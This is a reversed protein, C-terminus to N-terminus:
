IINYYSMYLKLRDSTTPHFNGLKNNQLMSKIDEKSIWCFDDIEDNSKCYNLFDSSAVKTNVNCTVAFNYIDEEFELGLIDASELDIIDPVNNLSSFEESVARKIWEGIISDSNLDSLEIQEGITVAWKSPYDNIKSRSIRGMLVKGDSSTILLHLSLSNPFYYGSDLGKIMQIRCEADSKYRNWSFNVLIWDARQIKVKLTDRDVCYSKLMYRPQNTEIVWKSSVNNIYDNYQLLEQVDLVIETEDYQELVIHVNDNKHFQELIM